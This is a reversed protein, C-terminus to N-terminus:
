VTGHDALIDVRGGSTNITGSHTVTANAVKSVADVVASARMFVQGGATTITGSNDVSAFAAPDLELRINGALPISVADGAGLMANGGNTTITGSNSVSAGILAVYGGDTDISGQNSVGASSGNRTFRLNGAEFDADSIGFTTATFASATIAGSSGVLVGNPNVLVVQGNANIQGHIQSMENGVVRNLLAASSSPQVVNVKAGSGVNFSQWNLVAKNSSQQIDMQAGSSTVQVEGAAVQHGSPLASADLAWASNLGGLLVATAVVASRVGEGSASKGQACAQEGVAILTGLRQSFIIKHFHANM